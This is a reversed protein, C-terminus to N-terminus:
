IYGIERGRLLKCLLEHLVKQTPHTEREQSEVMDSAANSFGDAVWWTGIM